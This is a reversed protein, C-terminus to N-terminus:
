LDLPMSHIKYKHHRDILPLVYSILPSNIVMKLMHTWAGLFNSLRHLVPCSSTSPSTLKRARRATRSVYMDDAPRASLCRMHGDRDPAWRNRVQWTWCRRRDLYEQQQWIYICAQPAAALDCSSIYSLQSCQHTSVHESQFSAAATPNQKQMGQETRRNRIDNWSVQMKIEVGDETRQDYVRPRTMSLRVLRMHSHPLSDDIWIRMETVSGFSPPVQVVYQEDSWRLSLFVFSFFTGNSYMRM